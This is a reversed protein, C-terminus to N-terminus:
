APPLFAAFLGTQIFNWLICYGIVYKSWFKNMNMNLNLNYALTWYILPSFSTIRNLIQINWFFTGGIIILGNIVILPLLKRNKPLEQYMYNLSYINFLLIPLVLLFNPINNITWYKLFGVNWYHYQAFQFLSPFINNCWENRGPCFKIYHYINTMLFTLFLFSGTIISLIIQLPSKNQIFHYLDFLYIMGLFLGNARITFNIACIIGSLIYIFINIISKNSPQKIDNFNMSKYYTYFMLLTLLNSLNESYNTTLFIGAPSIIMLLSSMLGFKMDMEKTLYYLVVVSAFHCLNSIIISILQATYYSNNNNNNSSSISSFFKILQIWGPCFVFQHEFQIPNIFLDNFYVSDWVILKNLITTIIIPFNTTTTTATTISLNEIILESSTDFQCPSFYIIILQISKIIIFLRLLKWLIMMMIMPVLTIVIIFFEHTDQFISFFFRFFFFVFSIFIEHLMSSSSSYLNKREKMFVLKSVKIYTHFDVM